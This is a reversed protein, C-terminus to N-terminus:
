KGQLAAKMRTSVPAFLETPPANVDQLMGKCQIVIRRLEAKSTSKGNGKELIRNEVLTQAGLKLADVAEGWKQSGLKWTTLHEDHMAIAKGLGDLKHKADDYGFKAM